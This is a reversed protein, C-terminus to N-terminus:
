SLLAREVAGKLQSKGMAGQAVEIKGNLPIFVLTPISRVNFLSALEEEEDVNVKYVDIKGSYEDSIEELVPALMRCPGCWAAYFDILAPKEGLFEFRGPVAEYDAIRKLFQEKTLHITAM